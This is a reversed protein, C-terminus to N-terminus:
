TRDSSPRRLSVPRFVLLIIMGLIKLVAPKWMAAEM